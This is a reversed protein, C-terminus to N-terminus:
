NPNSDGALQRLAASPPTTAACGTSAAAPRRRRRASSSARCRRRTRRSGPSRVRSSSHSTAAGGNIDGGVYNANYRRSRPRASRRARSSGHRPLRARLARDAGRDARDHRRDLREPRPLVGLGHAPRGARPDPRVPEAPRRLVYPREPDGGRGPAAESAAIEDLTAASTSPRRRPPVGRGGPSRGTSRGTSSSCARGTATASSHRATGTPLRDGALALLGRPTVDLLVRQTDGLEALSEVEHGTEIEGGLSRLYSALADAIAQSGGRAFRGASRTASCGAAHPRVGATPPRDLPLM